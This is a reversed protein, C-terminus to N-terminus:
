QGPAPSGGPACCRRHRWVVPAAAGPLADPLQRPALSRASRQCLLKQKWLAAPNRSSPFALSILLSRRLAERLLSDISGGKIGILAPKNEKKQTYSIQGTPKIVAFNQQAQEASLPWFIESSFLCVPMPLPVPPFTLLTNSGANGDSVPPVLPPLKLSRFFSSLRSINTIRQIRKRLIQIALFILAQDTQQVSGEYEGLM